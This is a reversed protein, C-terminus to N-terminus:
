CCFFAYNRSWFCDWLLFSCISRLCVASGGRFVACGGHFVATGGFMVLVIVM